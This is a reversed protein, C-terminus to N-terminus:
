QPSQATSAMQALATLADRLAPVDQGHEQEFATVQSSLETLKEPTAEEIATGTIADLLDQYPLPEPPLPAGAPEEPRPVQTLAAPAPPPQALDVTMVPAAELMAERQAVGDAWRYLRVAVPMSVAAAAWIIFPLAALGWGYTALMYCGLLFATITGMIDFFAALGCLGCGEKGHYECPESANRLRGVM